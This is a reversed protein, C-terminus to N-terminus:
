LNCLPHKGIEHIKSFNASRLGVRAKGKITTGRKILSIM